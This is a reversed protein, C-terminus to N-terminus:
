SWLRLSIGGLYLAAIRSQGATYPRGGSAVCRASFNEIKILHSFATECGVPTRQIDEAPEAVRTHVGNEGLTKITMTAFANRRDDFSIGTLQDDKNARNVSDSASSLHTPLINLNTLISGTLTPLYAMWLVIIASALAYVVVMTIKHQNQEQVQAVARAHAYQRRTCHRQQQSSM